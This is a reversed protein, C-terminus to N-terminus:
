EEIVEVIKYCDSNINGLIGNTKYDSGYFGWCSDIEEGTIKDKLVYGYVEGILYNNYTEVENNLYGEIKKILKKSIRKVGYEKKIRDSTIYVFGVQGSDWRCSFGTTNITIGSHNYLYLPLIIKANYEKILINKIDNWSNIDDGHRDFFEKSNINDSLDYRKNKCIMTGLNDWNRPNEPENGHCIELICQKKLSNQIEKTKFQLQKM